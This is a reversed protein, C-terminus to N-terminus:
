AKRKKVRCVKKHKKGKSGGSGGNSVSNTTTSGTDKNSGSGVHIYIADDVAGRAAVPLAVLQHNMASTLTSIRYLGDPLGGKVTTKVKGNVLKDSIGKFFAHEKTEFLNNGDVKQITVHIHGKILGESNLQQPAIYYTNKPSTFFGFQIKQATIVVDFDTKAPIVKDPSPEIIRVSPMNSDSPLFGMPTPNCSGEKVQAGNTLKAGRCFNIFNNTSTLSKADKDPNPNPVGDSKAAEQIVSPDLCRDSQEKDKSAAHVPSDLLLLVLLLALVSWATKSGRLGSFNVLFDM